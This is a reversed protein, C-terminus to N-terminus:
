LDGESKKKDRIEKRHKDALDGISKPIPMELELYQREIYIEEHCNTCAGGYVKCGCNECRTSM